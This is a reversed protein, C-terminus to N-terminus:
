TTIPTPPPSANNTPKQRARVSFCCRFVFCGATPHEELASKILQQIRLFTLNTSRYVSNWTKSSIVTDHEVLALLRKNVIRLANIDLIKEVTRLKVGKSMSVNLDFRLLLKALPQVLNHVILQKFQDDHLNGTDFTFRVDDLLKVMRNLGQQLEVYVFGRTGEEAVADVAVVVGTGGPILPAGVAAGLPLSVDPIKRM